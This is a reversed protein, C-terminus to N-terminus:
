RCAMRCSIAVAFKIILDAAHEVMRSTLAHNPDSSAVSRSVWRPYGANAGSLVKGRARGRREGQQRWVARHDYGEGALTGGGETREGCSAGQRVTTHCPWVRSLGLGEGNGSCRSRSVARQPCMICSCCAQEGTEDVQIAQTAEEGQLELFAHDFCFSQCPMSTQNRAQGITSTLADGGRRPYPVM